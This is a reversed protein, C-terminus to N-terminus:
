GAAEEGDEDDGSARRPSRVKEQLTTSGELTVYPELREYTADGIGRVMLLDTKDRFKGSQERHDVIRQAVAPGVRPLLQLTSVDATNINVVGSPAADEQAGAPLAIASLTLVLLCGLLRRVLVAAGGISQSHPHSKM